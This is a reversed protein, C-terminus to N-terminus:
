AEYRKAGNGGRRRRIQIKNKKTKGTRSLTPDLTLASTGPERRLGAGLMRLCSGPAKQSSEAMSRAGLTTHDVGM